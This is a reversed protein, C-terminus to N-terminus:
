LELWDNKHNEIKNVWKNIRNEIEEITDAEIWEKNPVDDFYYVVDLWETALREITYVSGYKYEPDTISFTGDSYGKYELQKKMEYKIRNVVQKVTTKDM